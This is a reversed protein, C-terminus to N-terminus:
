AIADLSMGEFLDGTDNLGMTSLWKRLVQSMALSQKWLSGEDTTFRCSQRNRLRLTPLCSPGAAEGRDGQWRSCRGPSRTSCTSRGVRERALETMTQSLWCGLTAASVGIERSLASAPANEPPLLRAVAQEKFQQGYLAM